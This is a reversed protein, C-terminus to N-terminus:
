DWLKKRNGEVKISRENKNQIKIFPKFEVSKQRKVKTNSPIFSILKSQM